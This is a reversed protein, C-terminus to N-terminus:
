TVFEYNIGVQPLPLLCVATSGLGKSRKGSFNGQLKYCGISAGDTGRNWHRRESRAMGVWKHPMVIAPAEFSSRHWSLEGPRSAARNIECTIGVAPRCHNQSLTVYEKRGFGAYGLQGRDRYAFRCVTDGIFLKM